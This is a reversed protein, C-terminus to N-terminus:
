QVTFALSMMIELTGHHDVAEWLEPVGDVGLGMEMTFINLFHLLSLLLTLLYIIRNRLIEVVSQDNGKRMLLQWGHSSSISPSELLFGSIM